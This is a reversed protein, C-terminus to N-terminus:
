EVTIAVGPDILYGDDRSRLLDRLGLTRLTAIAVRVRNRGSDSRVRQGPWGADLLREVNVVEGPAAVREAVLAALVGRLSPRHDLECRTGGGVEFWRGALAVRLEHNARWATVAGALDRRLAAGDPAVGLLAATEHVIALYEDWSRAAPDRAHAAAELRRISAVLEAQRGDERLAVVLQPPLEVAGLLAHFFRGVADLDSEPSPPTAFASEWAVHAAPADSLLVRREGDDAPYGWGVVEFHGAESVVFSANSVAGLCIAGDTTRHAARLVECTILLFAAAGPASVRPGAELVRRLLSELDVVADSRLAVFEIGAAAGRADLRPVHPHDLRAHAGAVADLLARVRESRAGTETSAIVLRREGTAADRCAVHRVAGLRRLEAPEVFRQLWVASRKAVARNVCLDQGM